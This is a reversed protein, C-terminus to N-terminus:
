FLIRCENEDKRLDVPTVPHANMIARDESIEMREPLLKAFGIGDV